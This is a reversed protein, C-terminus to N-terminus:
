KGQAGKARELLAMLESPFLDVDFEALADLFVVKYNTNEIEELINSSLQETSCFTIKSKLGTTNPFKKANEESLFMPVCPVSYHHVAGFGDNVDVLWLGGQEIIDGAVRMLRLWEASSFNSTKMMKQTGAM